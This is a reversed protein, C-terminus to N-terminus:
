AGASDPVTSRTRPRPKRPLGTFAHLRRAAFLSLAATALLALDLGAVPWYGSTVTRALHDGTTTWNAIVASLALIAAAWCQEAWAPALRAELVPATRSLAHAFAALWAAWFVGKQWDGRHALDEPLLRNAVLIALTAILMGTVATVALADAWRAGGAGQEAHRRKRKDVFFIFGTAICVCGALGGLVYLWRLLWHRFHQLHLGTLFENIRAIATPPPDERIVRGTSAEFHVGQGVLAVRDSGARFISVYGNADGVHMVKLFGVEGPMGRADWRRMAESMMEDVSALPAAVGAPKFALGKAEVDAKAHAQAPARLMTDSVPFYVGAFIILGSLAFV